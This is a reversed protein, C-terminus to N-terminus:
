LARGHDDIEFDVISSGVGIKVKATAEIGIGTSIGAYHLDMNSYGTPQTVLLSVPSSASYGAGVESVIFSTVTGGAGLVTTISAATGVISSAISVGPKFQYGRGSGTLKVDYITGPQGTYDLTSLSEEQLVFFKNDGFFCDTPNNPVSQSRVYSATRVDGPTSLKYELVADLTLDVLYMYTDNHAFTIGSADLTPGGAFETVGNSGDVQVYTSLGVNYSDLDGPTDLKVQVIGNLELVYVYSGTSSIGLGRPSIPGSVVPDQIANLDASSVTNTSTGVNTTYDYPTALTIKKISDNSTGTFWLETGDDNFVMGHIGGDHNFSVSTIGSVSDIAWATSLTGVFIADPDGTKDGVLFKTGDASFTLAQGDEAVTSISTTVGSIGNGVSAIGSAAWLHKIVM